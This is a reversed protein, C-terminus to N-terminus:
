DYIGYERLVKKVNEPEYRWTKSKVDYGLPKCLAIIESSSKGGIGRLSWMGDCNRKMEARQQIYKKIKQEDNVSLNTSNNGDSFLSSLIILVVFGIGISWWVKKMNSKDQSESKSHENTNKLRINNKKITKDKPSGLKASKSIEKIIAESIEKSKKSVMFQNVEAKISIFKNSINITLNQGWYNAEMKTKAIISKNKKDEDILKYNLKKIAQLTKLYIKDASLNIDYEFTHSSLSM